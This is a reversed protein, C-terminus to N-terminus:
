EQCLAVRRKGGPQEQQYEKRVAWPQPPTIGTDSTCSNSKLIWSMKSLVTELHTPFDAWIKAYRDLETELCHWSTQAECIGKRWLRLSTIGGLSVQRYPWILQDRTCTWETPKDWDKGGLLPPLALGHVPNWNVTCFLGIDPDTGPVLPADKSLLRVQLTPILSTWTALLRSTATDGGTRSLRSSFPPMPNANRIHWLGWSRRGGWWRCRCSNLNTHMEFKKISPSANCGVPKHKIHNPTVMKLKPGMRGQETIEPVKIDLHCCSMMRNNLLLNIFKKSLSCSFGRRTTSTEVRAHKHYRLMSSAESGYKVQLMKITIHLYRRKLHWSKFMYPLKDLM